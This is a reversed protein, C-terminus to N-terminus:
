EVASDALLNRVSVVEGVVVVAPPRVGAREADDACNRLTTVTTRQAPTWGSEIIAVPTDASRGAAVLAQATERLRSV